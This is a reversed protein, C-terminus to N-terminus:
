SAPARVDFLDPKEEGAIDLVLEALHIAETPLRMRDIHTLVLRAQEVAEDLQEIRRDFEVAPECNRDWPLGEVWCLTRDPLAM